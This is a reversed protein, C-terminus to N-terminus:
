DLNQSKGGVSESFRKVISSLAGSQESFEIYDELRENRRNGKQFLARTWSQHDLHGYAEGGRPIDELKGSVCLSAHVIKHCSLAFALM